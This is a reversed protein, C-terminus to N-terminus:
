RKEAFGAYPEVRAVSIETSGDVPRLSLTVNNQQDEGFKLWCEPLFFDHQPGVQWYRGIAHGNLYLFGNGTAELHVHWPVWLNPRADPLPFNMRYWTLPQCNRTAAGLAASKWRRDKFQPKWWGREVGGPNGLAKLPVDQGEIVPGFVPRGLGGDGDNNRVIVAVVNKGPRLEKTVDFSYARSWDTARGVSKGNVYIWGEDDIREFGLRWKTDKLDKATVEVAARFVAIKGATLQNAELKDVDTAPWDADNFDTKVEPRERTGKVEHLRWGSIPRGELNTSNMLRASSIGGLREMEAGGNAYGRNEYLLEVKSHGAPVAFVSRATTGGVRPASQGDIAALVADGGPYEVWLNTPTESGVTTRYYLFGSGYVGAQPLTEGPQLKTWHRPGPDAQMKASTIAVAAPLDAPREIAPAPKPLWEGQAPDNVGAPLYLIKAGFPELQYNFTFERMEGAKEKMTVTGARPERHESTRLFFYRSGDAARREAVTVDSRTNTIECDVAEARALREGHEQLMHGLAWVRQYRDGIGGWERIPANYDYTTTLDRAGWDGWNSGGFLMYYNLLTEGNQIAFLTLNNIQAATVGDQQESLKGGVQAFWGGQLETTGLPADPQEARLKGIGNSLESEVNWRPYFNCCDFIDRLVPDSSGRVQHTWCTILPVEIGDARAAQALAKIHNIKVEDPFGAYDYENEVQVLIVGKEGPSKRTIQHRAIVPCVAAYWHRSWALFVPDDSRLWNGGRLPQAPKQTLLWEPFGGTAWEACIYPGPRVIVYLGNQEALTLWDDLDTLNVQSFDNTGSPMQPECQNWAVYTEVCNFGAAKIKQFRDPWLEKPCRFYHFAGSYIFTDQGDITLCHRDYHIRDPHPFVRPPLATAPSDAALAAAALALGALLALSLRKNMSNKHGFDRRSVLNKLV